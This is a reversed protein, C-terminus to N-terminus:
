PRRLDKRHTHKAKQFGQHLLERFAKNGITDGKGATTKRPRKTQLKGWQQLKACLPLLCYIGKQAKLLHRLSIKWDQSLKWLPHILHLGRLLNIPSGCALAGHIIMIIQSCASQEQVSVGLLDLFNWLSPNSGDTHGDSLQIILFTEAPLCIFDLMHYAPLCFAVM